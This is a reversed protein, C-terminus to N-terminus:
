SLFINENYFKESPMGFETPASIISGQTDDRDNIAVPVCACPFKDWIFLLM